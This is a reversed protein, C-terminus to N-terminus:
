KRIMTVMKQKATVSRGLDVALYGLRSPQWTLSFKTVPTARPKWKCITISQFIFYKTKLCYKTLGSSVTQWFTFEQSKQRSSKNEKRGIFHYTCFNISDESKNLSKRQEFASQQACPHGLLFGSGDHQVEGFPIHWTKNTSAYRCCLSLARELRTKTEMLDIKFRVLNM